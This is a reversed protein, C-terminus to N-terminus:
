KSQYMCCVTIWYNFILKIMLSDLTNYLWCCCSYFISENFLSSILLLIIHTHTYSTIFFFFIFNMWEGIITSYLNLIFIRQFFFIFQFIKIRRGKKKERYTFTDLSEYIYYSPTKSHIRFRDHLTDHTRLVLM